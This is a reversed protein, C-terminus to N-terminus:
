RSAMQRQHLLAPDIPFEQSATPQVLGLLRAMARDGSHDIPQAGTDTALKRGYKNMLAALVGNLTPGGPMDVGGAINNGLGIGAM